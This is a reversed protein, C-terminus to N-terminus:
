FMLMQRLTPDAVYTGKSVKTHLLVVIIWSMNVVFALDFEYATLHPCIHYLASMIGESIGSMTLLLHIEFHRCKQRGDLRCRPCQRGDLYEYLVIAAAALGFVIQSINNALSNVGPFSGFSEICRYNFACVDQEGQRFRLYLEIAVLYSPVFYVAVVSLYLWVTQFLDQVAILLREGISLEGFDSLPMGRMPNSGRRSSSRHLQPSSVQSRSPAKTPRVLHVATLWAGTALLMCSVLAFLFGRLGSGSVEIDEMVISFSSPAQKASPDLPMLSVYIRHMGESLDKSYLLLTGTTTLTAYAHAKSLLSVNGAVSLSLLKVDDIQTRIVAISKSSTNSFASIRLLSNRSPDVNYEWFLLVGEPLSTYEVVGVVSKRFDDKSFLSCHDHRKSLSIGAKSGDTVHFITGCVIALYALLM